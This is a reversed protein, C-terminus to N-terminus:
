GENVRGPRVGPLRLIFTSGQELGSEVTLTGGHAEALGRAISLGLGTGKRAEGGEPQRVRFFKDFVLAHYSPDIGIGSDRVRLELLHEDKRLSVTIGGQDTFKLANTLLNLLMQKFQLRDAMLVLPQAPGELKLELGAERAQAGYLDMVERAAEHPDFAQAFRQVKGAEIQAVSLLNQIFQNLFEVANSLILLYDAQAGNLPGAKGQQLYNVASRMSHLPTGLDHTVGNVFDRKMRDLDKLEQTMGDFDRALEGLEDRRKLELVHDLKGERVLRIGQAIAQLPKALQRGLLWALLAGLAMAVSLMWAAPAVWTRLQAYLEANRKELDFALGVQGPAKGPLKVAAWWFRVRGGKPMRKVLGKQALGEFHETLELGEKLREPPEALQLKPQEYVVVVVAPDWSARRMARRLSKKAKDQASEHAALVVANLQEREVKRQNELLASRLGFFLLALSVAVGAATALTHSLFFRTALKL